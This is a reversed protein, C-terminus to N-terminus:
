QFFFEQVAQEAKLEMFKVFEEPTRACEKFLEDMVPFRLYFRHGLFYPDQKHDVNVEISM